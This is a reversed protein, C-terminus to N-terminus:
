WAGRTGRRSGPRRASARVRRPPLTPVAGASVSLRAAADGRLAQIPAKISLIPMTIVPDIESGATSWDIV